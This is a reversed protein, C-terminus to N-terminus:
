SAKEALVSSPTLHIGKSSLSDLQQPALEDALHICCTRVDPHISATAAQLLKLQGEVSSLKYRQGTHRYILSALQQLRYVGAQSFIIKSNM